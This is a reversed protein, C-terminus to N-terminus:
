VAAHDAPRNGTARDPRQGHSDWAETCPTTEDQCFLIHAHTDTKCQVARYEHVSTPRCRVSARATMHPCHWFCSGKWASCDADEGSGDCGPLADRGAHYPARGPKVIAPVHLDPFLGSRHAHRYRSSVGPSQFPMRRYKCRQYQHLWAPNTQHHCELVDKHAATFQVQNHRSRGFLPPPIGRM